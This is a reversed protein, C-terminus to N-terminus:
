IANADVMGTLVKDDKYMADFTSIASGFINMIRNMDRVPITRLHGLWMYAIETQKKEDNTIKDLIM